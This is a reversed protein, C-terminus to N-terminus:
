TRGTEHLKKQSYKKHYDLLFRTVERMINDEESLEEQVTCSARREKIKKPAPKEM